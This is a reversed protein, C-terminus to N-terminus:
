NFLLKIHNSTTVSMFLLNCNKVHTATYNSLYAFLDKYIVLM